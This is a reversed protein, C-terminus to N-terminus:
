HRRVSTSLFTFICHFLSNEKVYDELDERSFQFLDAFGPVGYDKRITKVKKTIPFLRTTTLGLVEAQKIINKSADQTSKIIELAVEVVKDRYESYWGNKFVHSVVKPDIALREAIQNISGRPLRSRIAALDLEKM